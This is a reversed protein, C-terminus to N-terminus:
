LYILRWNCENMNIIKMIIDDCILFGNENIVKAFSLLKYAKKLNKFEKIKQILQNYNLESDSLEKKNGINYVMEFDRFIRRHEWPTMNNKWLHYTLNVKYISYPKEVSNKDVIKISYEDM